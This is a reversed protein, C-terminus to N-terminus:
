PAAEAQAARRRTAALLAAGIGGAIISAGLIGVKAAALVGPDSFALAAIFLSVTFGIGAVAAVATVQGWGVESPLRAVGLRVAGWSFLTIGLIKGMVLGLVIGLTVRSTLADGVAGGGLQVGANALAFLPIIVYSTWPHLAHEMRALPSVAERSLTALGLWHHADADAHEADDGTKDAVRRARESVAGPKQFPLAPTVLGLAVGAITAHVGSVYVALWTGVGLAVYLATLRVNARQALMILAILAGATALAPWVIGESYFIAIVLIAGIDDVIALSLLFVRLSSPLGRGFLALVGVAFAIDTAMPIGWGSSGPGGANLAAYLLAPVIMGGLAAVTPLAATRPDRLEGVVLERKIELGVVFFFLAMLGDNIWHQADDILEWPGLRLALETHWVSEYSGPWVNAWVLAAAAAVLLLVGGAEETDLYAQFPRVVLRPLRRDSRSWPVRLRETGEEPAADTRDTM